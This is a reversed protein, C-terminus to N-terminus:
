MICYLGWQCPQMSVLFNSLILGLLFFKIKHSHEQYMRPSKPGIRYDNGHVTSKYWGPLWLVNHQLAGGVSATCCQRRCQPPAIAIDAMCVGSSAGTAPLSVARQCHPRKPCPPIAKRHPLLLPFGPPSEQWQNGVELYLWLTKSAFYNACFHASRDGM